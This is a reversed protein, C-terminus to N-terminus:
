GIQFGVGGVVSDVMWVGQTLNWNANTMIRITALTTIQQILDNQCNQEESVSVILLALSLPHGEKSIGKFDVTSHLLVIRYRSQQRTSAYESARDFSITMFINLM